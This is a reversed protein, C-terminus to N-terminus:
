ILLLFPHQASKLYFYISMAERGQERSQNKRMGRPELKKGSVHLLVEQNISRLWSM